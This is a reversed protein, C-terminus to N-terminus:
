ATGSNHAARLGIALGIKFFGRCRPPGITRTERRAVCWGVANRAPEGGGSTM